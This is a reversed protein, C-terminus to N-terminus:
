ENIIADIAALSDLAGAAISITGRPGAPERVNIRVLPVGANALRDGLMRITPVATGAGCEVVVLRCEGLSRIWDRYRRAQAESAADDWGGDGFMLINPRAMAGCQTCQPLRGVARMTAPDIEVGQGEAPFIGAGCEVTCQLHHISGHVELIRDADFGARQFQGDVNSTYVFWGKPMREGWRKLIAFGGHPLTERYLGLRHGYFGWALTPDERFWRPSALQAFDLGLKAYPPYARWFGERGRFDPLGSDVGMGAGATILLADAAALVEAALAIERDCLGESM